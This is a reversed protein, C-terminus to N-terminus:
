SYCGSISTSRKVASLGMLDLPGSSIEALISLPPAHLRAGTSTFSKLREILLQEIGELQFVDLTTGIGLADQM